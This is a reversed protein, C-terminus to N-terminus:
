GGIPATAPRGDVAPTGSQVAGAWEAPQPGCNLATRAFGSLAQPLRTRRARAPKAAPARTFASPHLGTTYYLQAHNFM